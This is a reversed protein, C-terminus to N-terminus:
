AMEGPQKPGVGRGPGARAPSDHRLPPIDGSGAEGLRGRKSATADASDAPRGPGADEVEALGLALQRPDLHKEYNCWPDLSSTDIPRRVQDLCSTAVARPASHGTSPGGTVVLRTGPAAVQGVLGRSRLMPDRRITRNM